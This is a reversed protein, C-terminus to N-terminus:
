AYLSNFTNKNEYGNQFIDLSEEEYAYLNHEIDKM